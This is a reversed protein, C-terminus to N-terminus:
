YHRISVLIDGLIMGCLGHFLDIKIGVEPGRVRTDLGCVVAVRDQQHFVSICGDLDSRPYRPM